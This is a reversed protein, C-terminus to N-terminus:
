NSQTTCLTDTYHYIVEGLPETPISSPPPQLVLSLNQLEKEICDLSEAPQGERAEVQQHLKNIEWTLATLKAENSPLLENPNGKAEQGGLAVTANSGSNNDNKNDMGTAEPDEIHFNDRAIPHGAGRHCTAMAHM